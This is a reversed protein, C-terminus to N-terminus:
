EAISHSYEIGYMMDNLLDTKSRFSQEDTDNVIITLYYQRPETDGLMTDKFPIIYHSFYRTTSTGDVTTHEIEGEYKMAPMGDVSVSQVSFQNEKLSTDNPSTYPWYPNDLASKNYGEKNMFNICSFCPPAIEGGRDATYAYDKSYITFSPTRPEATAFEIDYAEGTIQAQEDDYLDEHKKHLSIAGWKGDACLTFPVGPIGIRRLNTSAASCPTEPDRQATLKAAAVLSHDVTNERNMREIVIYGTKQNGVFPMEKPATIYDFEKQRFYDQLDGIIPSIYVYEQNLADNARLIGLTYVENEKLTPLADLISSPFYLSHTYGTRMNREYDDIMFHYDYANLTGINKESVLLVMDGVHTPSESEIAGKKSPSLQEPYTPQIPPDVKVAQAMITGVETSFSIENQPSNTQSTTTQESKTCGAGLLSVLGVLGTILYTKKNM